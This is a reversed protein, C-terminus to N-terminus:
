PAAPIEFTLSAWFSEWDVGTDKPAPIMHVAKVLWAGPRDFRLTVRGKRDTLASVAQDARGKQFAVVLVDALPKGQYLLRVPIEGGGALTYPNKEPVLELPLGAVQDFGRGRAEKGGVAVLAKACRSFVERGPAASQGREKRLSIVKELGEEQLYEEFKPADLEVPERRSDYVLVQLGPSAFSAFGAPETNPVGQIATEGGQAGLAAFRELLKPDRPVPDGRFGQGLRLRVAVRQGPAPTFAGPEIWLDHAELASSALLLILL